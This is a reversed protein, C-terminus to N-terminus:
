QATELIECKNSKSLNEFAWLPQLNKYNFAKKQVELDNLDFNKSNFDETVWIKNIICDANIIQKILRKGEILILQYLDRGKKTDLTCIKKIEAKSIM